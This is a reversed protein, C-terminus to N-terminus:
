GIGVECFIQDLHAQQAATTRHMGSVCAFPLDTEICGLTDTHMVTVPYKPLFGVDEMSEKLSEIFGANLKRPNLHDALYIENPHIWQKKMKGDGHGTRCCTESCTPTNPISSASRARKVSDNTARGACNSTARGALHGERQIGKEGRRCGKTFRIDGIFDHRALTQRWADAHYQVWRHLTRESIAQNLREAIKAADTTEAIFIPAVAEMQAARRKAVKSM